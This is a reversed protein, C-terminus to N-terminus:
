EPEEGMNQSTTDLEIEWDGIYLDVIKKTEEESLYKNNDSLLIFDDLIRNDFTIALYQLGGELSIEDAMTSAEEIVATLLGKVSGDPSISHFKTAVNGLRGFFEEKWVGYGESDWVIERLQEFLWSLESVYKTEVFRPDPYFNGESPTPAKELIEVDAGKWPSTTGISGAEVQRQLEHFTDKMYVWEAM